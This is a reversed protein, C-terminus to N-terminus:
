HYDFASWSTGELLVLLLSASAWPDQSFRLRPFGGETGRSPKEWALRNPWLLTM